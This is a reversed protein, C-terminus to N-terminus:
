DSRDAVAEAPEVSLSQHLNWFFKTLQEFIKKFIRIQLDM